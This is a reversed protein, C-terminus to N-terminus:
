LSEVPESPSANPRIIGNEKLFAEVKAGAYQSPERLTLQGSDILGQIAERRYEEGSGGGPGRVLQLVRFQDQPLTRLAKDIQYPAQTFVDAFDNRSIWGAETM